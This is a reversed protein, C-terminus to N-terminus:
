FKKKRAKSNAFNTVINAINLTRAVKNEISIISLASLRQQGMTSRLHNKIIKLKSFSRESTAVSVPITLFINCATLIENFSCCSSYNQVLIFESLELISHVANLKTRFCNRFSILQSSITDSIDDPYKLYLVQGMEYLEKDTVSPNRLTDPCIVRFNSYIDNLASSRNKIQGIIIDITRYFVNIKFWDQGTQIRHHNNTEDFFIKPRSIRKKTFETTTGWEKALHIAETIVLNFDNRMQKMNEYLAQFLNSAQEINQEKQQLLKSVTDVKKLINTEIIILVITEFKELHNKLSRAESIETSNTSVLIIKSLAKLIHVYRFRLADLADHRSSWRTPALKKITIKCKNQNVSQLLAWRKISYGFFVYINQLLDYFNRIEEVDKVSDNLILNLNHAACHVYPAYPSLKSIEAQVGKYVGSMNAAGDYGQGRLKQLPLDNNRLIDLIASSLAAGTQDTVPIFGLFSERIKIQVPKNEVYDTIVYRIIISLQDIKAIDQTTDIIVSFCSANKIKTVINQKIANGLIVIIENQISPSLYTVSKKKRQELLNQLVPDYKSLLKIISIFAGPNKSNESEDHGRFPMNCSALTLTVDIVRELIKRWASVEQRLNEDVDQDITKNRRWHDFIACSENHSLKEEHRNIGQQLHTWDNYGVAMTDDAQGFLWCPLCYCKDLIKSYCLWLRETKIGSKNTKNYFFTSFKRGKSDKPFPGLPRCPETDVLFRKEANTLKRDEYYGKDNKLYETKDGLYPTDTINNDDLTNLEESQPVETEIDTKNAANKTENFNNPESPNERINAEPEVM